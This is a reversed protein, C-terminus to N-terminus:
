RMLQANPKRSLADFAADQVSVSIQQRMRLRKVMVNTIVSLALSVVIVALLEM